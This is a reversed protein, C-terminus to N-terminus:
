EEETLEELEENPHQTLEQAWLHKHRGVTELDMLVSKLNPFVRRARNLIAFGYTDIDGWYLVRSSRLWALAELQSVANGLKMFAVTGSLDPLAIGTELSEVILTTTPAMELGILQDLPVELDGLGGVARRLEPCLVRMRI